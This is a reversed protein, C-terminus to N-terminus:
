IVYIEGTCQRCCNLTLNEYKTTPHFREHSKKKNFKLRNVMTQLTDIDTSDSDDVPISITPPSPSTAAYTNTTLSHSQLMELARTEGETLQLQIGHHPFPVNTSSNQQQTHQYYITQKLYIFLSSGLTKLYSSLQILDFKPSNQFRKKNNNLAMENLASLSSHTAILEKAIQVREGLLNQITSYCDRYQVNLVAKHMSIEDFLVRSAAAKTKWLDCQIMLKEIDELLNNIKQTLTQIEIEYRSKDRLLRELKYQFDNGVSAVLLKKLECNVQTQLDLQEKLGGNEDQTRDLENRLENINHHDVSSTEQIIPSSPRVGYVIEDVAISAKFPEVTATPKTKIFSQRKKYQDNEVTIISKIDSEESSKVKNIDDVNPEFPVDNIPRPVQYRYLQSSLTQAPFSSSKNTIDDIVYARSVAARSPEWPIFNLHKKRRSSETKISSIPLTNSDSRSLHAPSTSTHM